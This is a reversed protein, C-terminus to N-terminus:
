LLYNFILQILIIIILIFLKAYANANLNNAYNRLPPANILERPIYNIVLLLLCNCNKIMFIYTLYILSKLDSLLKYIGIAM